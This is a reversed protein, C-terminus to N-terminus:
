FPEEYIDQAINELQEKLSDKTGPELPYYKFHMTYTPYERDTSWTRLDRLFGHKLYVKDQPYAMQDFLQEQDFPKTVEFGYKKAWEEVSGWEEDMFQRISPEDATSVYLLVNDKFRPEKVYEFPIDRNEPVPVHPMNRLRLEGSEFRKRLKQREEEEKRERRGKPSNDKILKCTKEYLLFPPALFILGLLIAISNNFDDIKYVIRKLTQLHSM